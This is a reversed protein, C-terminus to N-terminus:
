AAGGALGEGPCALSEGGPDGVGPEPDDSGEIVLGLTSVAVVFPNTVESEFGVASTGAFASAGSAVLFMASVVGVGVLGLVPKRVLGVITLEEWGLEGFPLESGELVVVPEM